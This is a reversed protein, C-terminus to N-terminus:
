SQFGWPIPLDPSEGLTAQVRPPLLPSPRPHNWLWGDGVGMWGEEWCGQGTPARSGNRHYQWEQRQRQFLSWLDGWGWEAPVQAGAGPLEEAVPARVRGALFQAGSSSANTRTPREQSTCNTVEMKFVTSFYAMQSALLGRPTQWAHLLIFPEEPTPRSAEASGAKSFATGPRPAATGRSSDGGCCRQTM